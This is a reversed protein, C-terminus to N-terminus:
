AKVDAVTEGIVYTPVATTFNKVDGKIEKTEESAGAKQFSALSDWKLISYIQYPSEGGLKIVQASLLGYPGWHKQALPMHKNVYYDVDFDHGVPYQVIVTTM